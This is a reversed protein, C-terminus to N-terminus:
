VEYDDHDNGPNTRFIRKEDDSDDEIGVPALDIYDTGRDKKKGLM